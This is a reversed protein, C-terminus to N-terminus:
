ATLGAAQHRTAQERRNKMDDARPFPYNLIEVDNASLSNPAAKVIRYIAHLLAIVHSAVVYAPHGRPVYSETAYKLNLHSLLGPNRASGMEGRSCSENSM